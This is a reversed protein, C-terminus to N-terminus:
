LDKCIPEYNCSKNWDDRNKNNCNDGKTNLENTTKEINEFSMIDRNEIEVPM